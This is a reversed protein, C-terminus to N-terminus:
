LFKTKGVKAQVAPKLLFLLLLLLLLREYWRVEEKSYTRQFKYYNNQRILVEPQMHQIM